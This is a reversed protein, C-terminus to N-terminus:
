GEWGRVKTNRSDDRNRRSELFSIFLIFSGSLVVIYGGWAQPNSGVNLSGMCIFLGGFFHNM